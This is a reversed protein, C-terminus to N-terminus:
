SQSGEGKGRVRQKEKESNNKRSKRKSGGDKPRQKIGAVEKEKRFMSVCQLSFVACTHHQSFSTKEDKDEAEHKMMM